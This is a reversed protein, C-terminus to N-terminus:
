CDSGDGDWRSEARPCVGFLHVTGVFNPKRTGAHASYVSLLKYNM